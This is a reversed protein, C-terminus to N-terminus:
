KITGDQSLEEEWDPELTGDNCLARLALNYWVRDIVFDRLEPTAAIDGIIIGEYIGRIFCRLKEKDYGTVISVFERCTMCYGIRRRSLEKDLYSDIDHMGPDYEVNGADVADDIMPLALVFGKENRWFSVYRVPTVCAPEPELTNEVMYCGRQAPTISVFEYKM